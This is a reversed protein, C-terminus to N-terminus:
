DSECEFQHTEETKIVIEGTLSFTITSSASLDSDSFIERLQDKLLSDSLDSITAKIM